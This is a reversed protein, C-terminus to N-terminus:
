GRANLKSNTRQTLSTVSAAVAEFYSPQRREIRRLRAPDRIRGLPPRRAGAGRGVDPDGRAVSADGRGPGQGDRRDRAERGPVPPDALPRPPRAPGRLPARRAEPRRERLRLLLGAR